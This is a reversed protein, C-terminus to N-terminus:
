LKIRELMEKFRGLMEKTVAIDELSSITLDESRDIYEELEKKTKEDIEKARFTKEITKASVELEVIANQSEDIAIQAKSVVREVKTMFSRLERKARDLEGAGSEIDTHTDSDDCKLTAMENTEELFRDFKTEIKRILYMSMLLAAVILLGGGYQLAALREKKGEFEHAYESVCVDIMSLLENNLVYTEKELDVGESRNKLRESLALFDDSKEKIRYLKEKLESTPPPTIGNQEAGSILAELNALFEKKASEFEGFSGDERSLNLFLEKAMKQTLMREKGAMNIVNSDNKSKQNLFLTLLVLAIAIVSLSFGILKIQTTIKNM